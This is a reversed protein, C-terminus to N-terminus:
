SFTTGTVLLGSFTAWFGQEFGEPLQVFRVYLSLNWGNVERHKM